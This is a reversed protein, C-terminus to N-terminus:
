TAPPASGLAPQDCLFPAGSAGAHYEYQKGNAALVIKRGRTIMQTYSMGPKPCGLSGNPWEVSTASVTTIGTPDVTLRDALDAIAATVQAQMTDGRNTTMASGTPAGGDPTTAGPTTATVIAITSATDTTGTTTGTGAGTTTAPSTSPAPSASPTSTTMDSGCGAVVTTLVM